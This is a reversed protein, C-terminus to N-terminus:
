RVHCGPWPHMGRIQSAISSADRSWDIIADHRALKPALTAISDDQATEKARGARLDDLVRAILPVGDLALRDHLEGATELEGIELQSQAVIPGADMKNALRIVSNGTVRKGRIIAWNVPAAGR